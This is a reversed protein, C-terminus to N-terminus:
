SEAKITFYAVAIRFTNANLDSLRSIFDSKDQQTFLAM